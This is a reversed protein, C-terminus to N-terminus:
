SIDVLLANWSRLHRSAPASDQSTVTVSPGSPAVTFVLRLSGVTPNGDSSRLNTGDPTVEVSVITQPGAPASPARVARSETSKWPAGALMFPVIRTTGSPALALM